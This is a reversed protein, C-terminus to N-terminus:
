PLLNVNLERLVTPYAMHSSLPVVHSAIISVNDGGREFIAVATRGNLFRSRYYIGDVMESRHFLENAWLHTTVPYDVSNFEGAEAGLGYLGVDTVDALRLPRLGDLSAVFRGHIEASHSVAIGRNFLPNRNTERTVTEAFCTSLDYAAYM